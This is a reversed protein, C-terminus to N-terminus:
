GVLELTAKGATVDGGGSEVALALRVFRKITPPVKFIVERAGSGTGGAGIVILPALTPIAEWAEGDGSHQLTLTATKDDELAPLADVKVVFNFSETTVWPTAAGLDIPDSDATGAAAPLATVVHLLHDRLHRNM